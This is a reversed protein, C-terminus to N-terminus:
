LDLNTSNMDCLSFLKEALYGNIGTHWQDFFRTNVVLAATKASVQLAVEFDFKGRWIVALGM